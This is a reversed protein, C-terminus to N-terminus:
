GSASSVFSELGTRRFPISKVSGVHDVNVGRVVGGACPAVEEDVDGGDDDAQEDGNSEFLGYFVEMLTMLELLQAATLQGIGPDIQIVDVLEPERVRLLDFVEGLTDLLHPQCDFLVPLEGRRDVPGGDEGVGDPEAIEGGGPRAAEDMEERFVFDVAGAISFYADRLRFSEFLASLLCCPLADGEFLSKLRVIGGAFVIERAGGGAWSSSYRPRRM